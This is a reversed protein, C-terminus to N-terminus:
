PSINIAASLQFLFQCAYLFDANTLILSNMFFSIFYFHYCLASLCSTLFLSLLSYVGENPLFINICTWYLSYSAPLLRWTRYGSSFIRPRSFCFLLRQFLRNHSYSINEEQPWVVFNQLWKWCHWWTRFSLAPMM